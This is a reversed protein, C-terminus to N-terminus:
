LSEGCCQETAGHHATAQPEGGAKLTPQSPVFDGRVGVVLRSQGAGTLTLSGSALRAAPSQLVKLPVFGGGM